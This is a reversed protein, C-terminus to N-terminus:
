SSNAQGSDSTVASCDVRTDDIFSGALRNCISFVDAAERSFCLVIHIDHIANARPSIREDCLVGCVNTSSTRLTIRLHSSTSVQICISSAFAHPVIVTHDVARKDRSLIRLRSLARGLQSHLRVLLIHGRSLRKGPRTSMTKQFSGDEIDFRQSYLMGRQSRIQLEHTIKESTAFATPM